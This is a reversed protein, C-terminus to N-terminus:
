RNLTNMYAILNSIDTPSLQPWQIGKEAMQRHMERGSRWGLAVMSFPTFTKGPAPSQPNAKPTPSRHCSVCGKNEFTREGRSVVGVPGRYQMEWVYAAVKRMDDLSIAPMSEMRPMHNWMAAGIDMFTKNRVMVALSEPGAHCKGCYETVLPRGESANALSLRVGGQWKQVSQFYATLDQLERGTLKTWAKRTAFEKKMSSAHNWMQYVLAVPDDLPAWATVPKGPSGTEMSHCDACHKSEFLRSGRQALAPRDFFQISYLFAFADEWDAESPNPQAIARASVQSWMSPAHNWVASALAPVTYDPVLRDGLNPGSPTVASQGIGSQGRVNHCELCGQARLVAAGRQADAASIFAACALFLSLMSARTTM